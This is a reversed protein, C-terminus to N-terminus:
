ATRDVAYAGAGDLLFKLLGGLIALNKLVHAMQNQAKAPDPDKMMPVHVAFTAILLFIMLAVTSWRTKFGILLGIGGGLEFLIALVTFLQPAPFGISGGFTATGAFDTLKHFGSLLFIVAMLVRAVPHLAKM